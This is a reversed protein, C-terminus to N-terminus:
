RRRFRDLDIGYRKVWRHIQTRAKDMARAVEAVNGAHEELLAVLRDRLEREAPDLVPRVTTVPESVSARLSEPLHPVDVHGDLALALAARLTHELARVNLPWPNRLLLEAASPSFTAHTKGHETLLARLVFAFDERREALRPLRFRFGALRAFLDSRFREAEILQTLDRHTASVLAIDVEIPRHAGIATV